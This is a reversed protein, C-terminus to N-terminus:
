ENFNLVAYEGHLQKAANDYCIAADIANSFTGLHKRKNNYSIYAVYKKANAHYCVGKYGTTNNTQIKRNCSNEVKTAIRLNNYRNNTADRDIHDIDDNDSIANGMYVLALYCAPYEIRNIRIYIRAYGDKKRIKVCGAIQGSHKNDFSPNGRPKWRFIGTEPDYYLLRKM